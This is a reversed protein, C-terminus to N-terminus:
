PNFQRGPRDLRNGCDLHMWNTNHGQTNQPNELWLNYKKLLDPRSQVLKGLDQNKNDLIDVANGTMHYSQKAANKVTANLIAPRWGSTVVAEEIGLDNLLQNVQKLLKQANVQIDQTFEASYTIRRDEKTSFDIFFSNLDIIEKM